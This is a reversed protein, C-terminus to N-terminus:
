SLECKNYNKEKATVLTYQLILCSKHKENLLM